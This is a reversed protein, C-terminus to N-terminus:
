NGCGRQVIRDYAAKAQVLGFGFRTDRGRTGLDLASLGLTRRLQAATCQPQLSWVLAAVGAVHPTAMSTGDYPSYPSGGARVSLSAAQDLQAKLAAGATDSVSVSPIRTVAGGLTGSFEGAVNNFVIAGLGGSRQCNRVKESFYNEGREILCVRGKMSGRVVGKGRGFDALPATVSARPSGEMPLPAYSTGGVTLEAESVLGDPVTSLVQVGPASIEVQRNFNSFAASQRSEDLAGVSMVSDYSAPYSLSRNGDNGAAAVLLMGEAHLRDLVRRETATPEGGGLSMNIVHAGAAECRRAAAALTSSYTWDGHEGFVKVIHLRLTDAPMVGVVGTGAVNLAAITGAVHTGHGDVDEHWNGTGPDFDGTVRDEGPLDEHGMAYGSDIICVTRSVGQLLALQDAQVMAIGYPVRQGLAYPTGTSDTYGGALRYRRADREVYAVGPLQRLAPLADAPAEVAVADAGPIELKVRGGLRALADGAARAPSPAGPRLGIIYREIATPAAGPGAERPQANAIAWPGGVAALLAVIICHRSPGRM